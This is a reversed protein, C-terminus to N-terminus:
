AADGGLLARAEARYEEDSGTLGRLAALVEERFAQRAWHLHNTVQTVPLGLAAAVEAYTPRAGDAGAVDVRRFVEYRIAKGEGTARRELAGLALDLVARAWERDFADDASDPASALEAELEPLDLPVAVLGGGRKLRGTAERHHGVLGDLCTRLWTRFRGRAPDYGELWGKALAQSFFEQVLDQAEDPPFRHRLRLTVYLPKWYAAALSEAARGREGPDSSGLAAVVSHRTAPYARGPGGTEPGSM